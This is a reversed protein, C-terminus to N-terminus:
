VQQEDIAEVTREDFSFHSGPRDAVNMTNQVYSQILRYSVAEQYPVWSM